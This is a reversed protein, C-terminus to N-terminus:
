FGVKITFMNNADFWRSDRFAYDLGLMVGGVDYKIGGGLTFTYMPEEGEAMDMVYNYGGRLALFNDYSFEAGFRMADYELNNNQFLGTVLLKSMETVKYDYALGIQLFAPLQDSAAEINYYSITGDQEIIKNMLGSGEYQMNAGINKMVVAFSVGEVGALNMYQIGLDFVFATGSVRPISEHVMKAKVGVQIANTLKNAYTLGITAWTPSFTAGSSGDMDQITTLPVDGFDFSKIDFGISGFSGMNLGLGLYNIGIDSLVTNHTFSGVFSAEMNSLGAPNWYLADVGSTYVINAGAMAVGRAGVPQQLQTGAATGIRAKDGAFLPLSMLLLVVLFISMGYRKNLKIM